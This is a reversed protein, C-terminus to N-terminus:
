TAAEALKYKFTLSFTLLTDSPPKDIALPTVAAVGPKTELERAFQAIATISRSQGTLRFTGDTSLTLATLSADKPIGQQILIWVPNFLFRAQRAMTAQSVVATLADYTKETTKHTAIKADLDTIKATYQDLQKSRALGMVFLIAWVLAVM